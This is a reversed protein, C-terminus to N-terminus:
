GPCVSRAGHVQGLTQWDGTAGPAIMSPRRACRSRTGCGARDGRRREFVLSVLVRQVQPQDAEIRLSPSALAADIAITAPVDSRLGALCERVEKNLDVPTFPSIGQRSYALLQDTLRAAAGAAGVIEELDRQTPHAQPLSAQAM